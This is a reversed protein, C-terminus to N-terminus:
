SCFWPVVSLTASASCSHDYEKDQAESSFKCSTLQSSCLLHLTPPEAYTTKPLSVSMEVLAIILLIIKQVLGEGEVIRLEEREFIEVDV